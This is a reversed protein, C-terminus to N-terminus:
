GARGKQAAGRRRDAKPLAPGAAAMMQEARQQLADLAADLRPLEAEPLCALLERNIQLVLPFLEDYLARGAATLALAAQRRDGAGTRRELLKKGVLSTIAKSTRARDLQARQALQSSLLGEEQALLALIRWERRTIGFRGECLRIVMGGAAALLRNLRYLLVDDLSAPEALRVPPPM